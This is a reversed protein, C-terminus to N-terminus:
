ILPMRESIKDQSLQSTVEKVFRSIFHYMSIEPMFEFVNLDTWLQELVVFNTEKSNHTKNRKSLVLSM